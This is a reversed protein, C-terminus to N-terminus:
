LMTRRVACFAAATGNHGAAVEIGNGVYLLVAKNESSIDEQM